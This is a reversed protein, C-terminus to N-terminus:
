LIQKLTELKLIKGRLKNKGYLKECATVSIYRFLM